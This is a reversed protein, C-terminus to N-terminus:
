FAHIMRFTDPSLVFACVIIEFISCQLAGNVGLADRRTSARRRSWMQGVQLALLTRM